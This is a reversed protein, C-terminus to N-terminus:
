FVASLLLIWLTRTNVVMVVSWQEMQFQHRKIAQMYPGAETCNLGESWDQINGHKKEVTIYTGSKMETTYM